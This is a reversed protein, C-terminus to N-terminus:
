GSLGFAALDIGARSADVSTVVDRAPRRTGINAASTPLTRIDSFVLRKNRQCGAKWVTPRQHSQVTEYKHVAAGDARHALGEPEAALTARIATRSSEPVGEWLVADPLDGSVEGRLELPTVARPRWERVYVDGRLRIVYEFSLETALAYFLKCDAFGRDAVM